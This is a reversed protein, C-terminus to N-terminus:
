RKARRANAELVANRQDASLSDIATPRSEGRLINGVQSKSIGYKEAVKRQSMTKADEFLQPLQHAWLRANPNGDDNYTTSRWQRGLRRMDDSNQQPTGAYLHYPNGCRRGRRPDHAWREECTHLIQLGVPIPGKVLMYAIRSATTHIPGYHGTGYGTQNLQNEKNWLWCEDPGGRDFCRWFREDKDFSRLEPPISNIAM